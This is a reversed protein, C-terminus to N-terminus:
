RKLLKIKSLICFESIVLIALLLVAPWFDQIFNYIRDRTHGCLHSEATIVESTIPSLYVLDNCPVHESINYCMTSNM